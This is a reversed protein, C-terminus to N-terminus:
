PCKYKCYHELPVLCKIFDAKQNVTIQFDKWHQSMKSIQEAESSKQMHELTIILIFVFMCFFLSKCGLLMLVMPKM